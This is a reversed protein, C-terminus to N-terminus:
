GPVEQLALAAYEDGFGSRPRSRSLRSRPHPTCDPREMEPAIIVQSGRGSVKLGTGNKPCLFLM